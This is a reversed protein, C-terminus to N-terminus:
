LLLNLIWNQNKFLFDNSGDSLLIKAFRKYSETPIKNKEISSKFSILNQENLFEIFKEVSEYKLKESNTEYNLIHFGKDLVLIQIAPFNGNRQNLIIKKNKNELYLKKKLPEYYGFPTGKFGQGIKIDVELTDQNNFNFNKAELWLEHAQLNISFFNILFFILM